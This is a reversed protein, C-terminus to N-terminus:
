PKKLLYLVFSPESRCHVKSVQSFLKSCHVCTFLCHAEPALDHTEPEALDLNGFHGTWNGARHVCTLLRLERLRIKRIQSKSM